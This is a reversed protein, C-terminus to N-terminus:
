STILGMTDQTLKRNIAFLTCNKKKVQEVQFKVLYKNHKKYKLFLPLPCHCDRHPFIKYEHESSCELVIADM